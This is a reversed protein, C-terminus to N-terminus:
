LLVISPLQFSVKEGGLTYINLGVTLATNVASETLNFDSIDVVSIREDAPANGAEQYAQLQSFADEVATKAEFYLPELSTISSQYLATFGTGETPKLPNSGKETWLLKYFLACAKAIGATKTSAPSFGTKVPQDKVLTVNALISTDLRTKTTTKASVPRTAM